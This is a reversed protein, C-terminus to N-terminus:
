GQSSTASGPGQSDTDFNVEDPKALYAAFRLAGHLIFGEILGVGVSTLKGSTQNQVLTSLAAFTVPMWQEPSKSLQTITNLIHYDQYHSTIAIISSFFSQAIMATTLVLSCSINTHPFKRKLNKNILHRSAALATVFALRGYVVKKQFNEDPNVILPQDKNHSLVETRIFPTGWKMYSLAYAINLFKPIHNRKPLSFTAQTIAHIDM